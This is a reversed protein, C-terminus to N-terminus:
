FWFQFLSYFVGGSSRVDCVCLSLSLSLDVIVGREVRRCSGRAFRRMLMIFPIVFRVFVSAARQLTNVPFTSVGGERVTFPRPM